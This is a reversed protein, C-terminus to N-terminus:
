LRHLREPTRTVLEQRKPDIILDLAEMPLVGLLVESNGPLLVAEIMMERNQFKIQLPGILDMELVTGDALVQREKRVIPLQLYEQINENIATYFSGSNVLAKVTIKRIEEEGILHKRASAFDYGNILEIEAHVLGM